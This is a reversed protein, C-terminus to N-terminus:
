VLSPEHLARGLTEEISRHTRGTAEQMALMQELTVCVLRGVCRPCILTTCQKCLGGVDAPDARPPVWVVSACHGCTFTAREQFPAAVQPDTIVGVGGPNRM